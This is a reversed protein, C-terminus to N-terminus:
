NPNLVTVTSELLMGTETYDTGGRDMETRLKHWISM